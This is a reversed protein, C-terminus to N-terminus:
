FRNAGDIFEFIERCLKANAPATFFWHGGATEVVKCDQSRGLMALWQQSHFQFPKDRGYAYFVPCSVPCLKEHTPLPKRTFLLSRWLHFYPAGMAAKPAVVVSSVFGDGATAMPNALAKTKYAPRGNLKCALLWILWDGVVAPVLFCVMIWGQYFMIWLAKRTPCNAYAGFLYHALYRPGGDGATNGAVDLAVIREFLGSCERHLEFTFISGWDHSVIFPRTNTVDGTMNDRVSQELLKVLEQLTFGFRRGSAAPAPTTGPRNGPMTLCVLRYRAEFLPILNSAFVDCSDPWGAIFFVTRGRQNGCVFSDM